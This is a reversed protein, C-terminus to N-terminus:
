TRKFRKELEELGMKIITPRGHPCTYPLNTAELQHVLSEIEQYTLKNGAKIASHCSLSIIIQKKIEQIDRTKELSQLEAILDFVLEKPDSKDALHPVSRLIFTNQGFGELEFGLSNFLDLNQKLVESAKHDTELTIPILLMQAPINAEKAELCFQEYLVREHCAHQDIIFLGEENQALIYSNHIQALPYLKLWTKAPQASLPLSLTPSERRPWATSQFPRAPEQIQRQFYRDIAGKIREQQQPLPTETEPLKIAPVLNAGSLSQSIAKVLWEHVQGENYFRVESKTPHVNVDVMNPDLNIFIIAIPHRDNFLLTQYGSYLAHTITKSTIYRHNIFFSQWDKNARTRTPPALFGSIEILNTKFSIPILERSLEWGLFSAVRDLPNNTIPANIIEQGNHILKFSIHPHSLAEQSVIHSIHGMETSTTKLFKRRAPTNFFLEQVDILSGTPAGQEQVDILRGGEIRVRTASSADQTKTILEVKSVAAISPLAEGRFGFTHISDLDEARDIKSTAHREFALLADERTMGCGNDVVRILNTGGEIVEVIIRTSDADISNEILEKVVSAPRQVVEGAAIKNAIQIPLIKIRNESM